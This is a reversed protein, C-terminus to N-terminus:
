VLAVTASRDSYADTFSSKKSMGNARSFFQLVEWKWGARSQPHLTKLCFTVIEPNDDDSQHLTRLNQLYKPAKRLSLSGAISHSYSGLFVNSNRYAQHVNRDTPLSTWFHSCCQARHRRGKRRDHARSREHQREALIAHDVCRHRLPESHRARKHRSLHHAPGIGSLMLLKPTEVTGASLVVAHKARVMGVGGSRRILVGYAEVGDKILVQVLNQHKRSFQALKEWFPNNLSGIM